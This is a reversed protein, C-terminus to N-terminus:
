ILTAASSPQHTGNHATRAAAAVRFPDVPARARPSESVSPTPRRRLPKPELQPSAPTGPPYQRSAYDTMTLTLLIGLWVFAAGAFAWTLRSAYKVHMFFLVILVGKILAILIALSVNWYGGHLKKDLDVFAAVVTLVLLAMLALLIVVYLRPHVIHEHEEAM